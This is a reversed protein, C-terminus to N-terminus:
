KRQLAELVDGQLFELLGPAEGRYGFLKEAREPRTRSNSAFLYRAIKGFRPHRAMGDLEELSVQVPEADLIAGHRQLVSGVANAIDLQSHEQTGAFYYGEQNWGFGGGDGSAAAEVVKLYVRMLDQIHVWSRTNSGEGYYFVKGDLKQIENIYVPTFITSTKGLGTGTGYIDPPCMIAINVRGSHAAITSHLIKETNRHLAVDPLNRIEELSHIDSWIKPSLRGLHTEDTWDSVIGTGSLHLLFGPTSRKLLGSLIANLSAEHDSDGNHVVIDADQAAAAILESSDYDGQIVKIAPYTSAFAEPTKRLLVTFNWEPHATSLTHLVSGGIYGTGGTLFIKPAM